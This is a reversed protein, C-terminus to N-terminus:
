AAEKVDNSVVESITNAFAFQDKALKVFKEKKAQVRKFAEDYLNDADECGVLKLTEVPAVKLSEIMEEANAFMGGFFEQSPDDKVIDTFWKGEHIRQQDARYADKASELKGRAVSESAKSVEAFFKSSESEFVDSKEVKVSPVTNQIKAVLSLLDSYAEADFLQSKMANKDIKITFVTQYPDSMPTEPNLIKRIMPATPLVKKSKVTQKLKAFQEDDLKTAEYLVTWASVTSLVPDSVRPDSAINKLKMASKYSTDTAKCIKKFEDSDGGFQDYALAFQTAITKWSTTQNELAKKITAIIGDSSVFNSKSMANEKTPNAEIEAKSVSKSNSESMVTEKESKIETKTKSVPKESSKTM